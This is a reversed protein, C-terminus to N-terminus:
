PSILDCVYGPVISLLNSVAIFIFLTGIFPLYHGPEQRSVGRIQDQIGIVLLELLNQWRSFRTETSLRRTVLWSGTVLFAMVVWTFVITANLTISGVQWIM